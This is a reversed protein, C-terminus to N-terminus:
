GLGEVEVEELLGKQWTLTMVSAQLAEASAQGAGSSGATLHLM